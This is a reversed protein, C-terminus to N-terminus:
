CCPLIHCICNCEASFESVAPTNTCATHILVLMLMATISATLDAATLDAKEISDTLQALSVDPRLPVTNVTSVEPTSATFKIANPNKRQAEEPVFGDGVQVCM